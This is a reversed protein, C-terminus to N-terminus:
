EDEISHKIFSLGSSPKVFEFLIRVLIGDGVYYEKDGQAFKIARNEFVYPRLQKNRKDLLKHTAKSSLWECALGNRLGLNIWEDINLHILVNKRGMTLDMVNEEGLNLLFIPMALPISFGSRLDSAPFNNGSVWAKFAQNGPFPFKYAGISLCGEFHEIAWGKEDCKELLHRVVDEYHQLIFIDESIRVNIESIPDRGSGKELISLNAATKYDQKVMRMLQEFQKEGKEQAFYYMSKPCKSKYLFDLFERTEENKKGEKLEAVGIIPNSDSRDLVLVDGLQLFSTIDTLLAFRLTNEKNYRTVFEQGSSLNSSKISLQNQGTYMRRAIYHFQGILQWAISDALKRTIMEQNALSEQKDKLTKLIEKNKENKLKAKCEDKQQQILLLTNIIEEQALGFGEHVYSIFKNYQLKNKLNVPANLKDIGYRTVYINIKRITEEFGDIKYEGLWM